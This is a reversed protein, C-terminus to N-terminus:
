ETWGTANWVGYDNQWIGQSSPNLFGRVPPIAIYVIDIATIFFIGATALAILIGSVFGLFNTVPSVLTDAESLQSSTVGRYNKIFDGMAVDDEKVEGSNLIDQLSGSTGSSGTGNGSGGTNQVNQSNQTVQAGNSGAFDNDYSGQASVSVGVLFCCTLGVILGKWLRKLKM